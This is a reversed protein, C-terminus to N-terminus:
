KGGFRLIGFRWPLHFAARGTPGWAYHDRQDPVPSDIRYFNVTWEDGPQPPIHPAGYLENFPIAYEARWERAGGQKDVDGDVWVATHLDNFDLQPLGVFSEFPNEESRGNLICTDYVINKPSLNIEYYQYDSKAPNLFVEVCEENFVPDDRHTCTGWVYDDECVFAVYLYSSDYLARVTTGFRGPKGTIADVLSVAEAQEWLPDDMKGSMQIPRDVHMCEYVPRDTM